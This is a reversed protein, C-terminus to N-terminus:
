QAEKEKSKETLTRLFRTRLLAKQSRTHIEQREERSVPQVGELIAPVM